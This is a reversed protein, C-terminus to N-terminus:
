KIKIIGCKEKPKPPPPENEVTNSEVAATQTKQSRGLTRMIAERQYYVGFASVILGGVTLILYVTNTSNNSSQETTNNTASTNAETTTNTPPKQAEAQKKAARALRNREALRKGSAVRGPHKPLAPKTKNEFKIHKTTILATNALALFRGFRLALGGALSSLEQNIIYDYKLEKQLEKVDDISVVIGVGKTFLMIFSGILSETTKNGMYAGYRKSYKQFFFFFSLRKVQDHTLQVGIAEKSKGTSVLVALKERQAPIQDDNTLSVLPNSSTTDVPQSELLQLVENVAAEEEPTIQSMTHIYM